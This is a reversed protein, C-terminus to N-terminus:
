RASLEKMLRYTFELEEDFAVVGIREDRGHARGDDLDDFMGDSSGHAHTSNIAILHQLVDRALARTAAPPAPASAGANARGLSLGAIGAAGLAVFVAAPLKIRSMGARREGRADFLATLVSV